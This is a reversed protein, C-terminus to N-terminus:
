GENGEEHSAEDQKDANEATQQEAPEETQEAAPQEPSMTEAVLAFHFRKVDSPPFYMWDGNEMSLAVFGNILEPQRRAMRGTFEERDQTTVTIQYTESM